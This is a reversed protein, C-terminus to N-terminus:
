MCVFTCGTNMRQFEHLEDPHFLIMQGPAVLYHNQGNSVSLTNELVWILESESHLHPTRYYVINLFLRLGDVQQYQVIELEHM